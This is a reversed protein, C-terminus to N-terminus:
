ISFAVCSHSSFEGVLLMPFGPVPIGISKIPMGPVSVGISKIPMGPVSIAVLNWVFIQYLKIQNIKFFYKFFLAKKSFYIPFYCVSYM